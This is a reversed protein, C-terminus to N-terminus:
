EEFKSNLKDTLTLSEKGDNDPGKQHIEPNKKSEQKMLFYTQESKNPM